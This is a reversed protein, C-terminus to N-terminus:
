LSAVVTTPRNISIQDPLGSSTNMLSRTIEHPETLHQQVPAFQVSDANKGRLGDVEDRGIEGALGSESRGRKLASTV